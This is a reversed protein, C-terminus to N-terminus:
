PRVTLRGNQPTVSAGPYKVENRLLLPSVRKGRLNADLFAAVYDRVAAITKDAGMTGTHFAGPLIWLADSLTLHEAGALNVALRPGRLQNWLHVEEGTWESRGAALLMVPTRTSDVLSEPPINDIVIAAHFRTERQAGLLATLGGFSYGAVGVRSMDLTGALPNGPTTNLRSLQDLVFKLDDLRVSMALAMSRDDNHSTGGLHSGLLSEAFRGDPFAVATAEYTHDLSVVTYGRSALDEFLFTYDTSTGTYGPTFVVVPHAGTSVPAEWCSNTTVEPLPASLLKSFQAWVKPAAYDAPNCVNSLSAPYWLRVLLERKLGNNLFLDNRSPDQLAVVRTGVSAPGSPTPAVLSASHQTTGSPIAPIHINTGKGRLNLVQPSDSSSDTITVAGIFLNARVPFFTVSIDCSAGAAVSAGCTNTQKFAASAVM